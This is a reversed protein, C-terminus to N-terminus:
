YEDWNLIEADPGTAFQEVATRWVGNCWADKLGGPEEQIKERLGKTM